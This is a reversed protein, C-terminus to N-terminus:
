ESVVACFAIRNGANREIYPAALAHEKAPRVAATLRRETMQNRPEVIHFFARDSNVAFIDPRCRESLMCASRILRDPDDDFLQFVIPRESPDFAIRQPLNPTNHVVDLGNIFETISVPSGLERTIRRFPENTWGDLPAQILPSGFNVAGISFPTFLGNLFQLGAM